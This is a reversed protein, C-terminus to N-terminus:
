ICYKGYSYHILAKIYIYLKEMKISKTREKSNQFYLARFFSNENHTCKTYLLQAM